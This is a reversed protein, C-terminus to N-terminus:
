STGVVNGGRVTVAMGIRLLKRPNPVAYFHSLTRTAPDVAPAIRRLTGTFSTGPFTTVTFTVTDRHFGPVQEEPVRAEVWVTTLDVITYIPDSEYVLQGQSFNAAAVEGAIPSVLEFPKQKDDTIQADHMSLTRFWKEYEQRIAQAETEAVQVDKTSAAKEPLALKLRDATAEAILMRRKADIASILIPWRLNILHLADHMIYTPLVSVLKQGKTVNAGITVHVTGPVVRAPWPAVVQAVTNPAAVIRGLVEGFGRTVPAVVPAVAPVAVDAPTASASRAAPAAQGPVTAEPVWDVEQEARQPLFGRAVTRTIPGLILTVLGLVVVAGGFAIRRGEPRAMLTRLPPSRLVLVVIGVVLLIAVGAVVRRVQPVPGPHVLLPVEATGRSGSPARVEVDVRFDGAVSARHVGAFVGPTSTQRLGIALGDILLRVDPAGVSPPQGTAAKPPDAKVEVHVDEGAVPDPPVFAVGIQWTESGVQVQRLVPAVGEHGGHARLPLVLGCLLFAAVSAAIAVVGGRPARRSWRLKLVIRLRFAVLAYLM